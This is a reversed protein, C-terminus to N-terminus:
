SKVPALGDTMGLLRRISAVHNAHGLRQGELVGGGICIGVVEGGSNLLPAGSSHTAAAAGPAYRFVLARETSEVVVAQVTRSTAAKGVNFALWVPEGVRPPRQALKGPSVRAAPDARFAAIDRQAYPEEENTRADPLVLMAGASGLEALPWQPAFVDYLQVKQVLPPLERGTYSANNPTCDIKRSKILEDMVHLATLVLPAGSGSEVVFAYSGFYSNSGCRFEPRVVFREPVVPAVAQPQPVALWPLCQHVPAGEVVRFRHVGTSVHAAYSAPMPHKVTGRQFGEHCKECLDNDPGAPCTQCEFRRGVVPQMGCGHCRYWIHILESTHALDTM